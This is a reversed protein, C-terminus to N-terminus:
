PGPVHASNEWRPVTNQRVEVTSPVTRPGHPGKQGSGGTGSGERRMDKSSLQGGSPAEKVMVHARGWKHKDRQRQKGRDLQSTGPHPNRGPLRGRSETAQQSEMREPFHKALLEGTDRAAWAGDEPLMLVHM